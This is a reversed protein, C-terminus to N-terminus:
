DSATNRTQSVAGMERKAYYEVLEVEEEEKKKEEEESKQQEENEGVSCGGM